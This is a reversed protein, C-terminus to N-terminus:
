LWAERLPLRNAARGRQERDGVQGSQGGKAEVILQVHGSPMILTMDIKDMGREM